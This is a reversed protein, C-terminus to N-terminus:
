RVAGARTTMPPGRRRPPPRGGEACSGGGWRQYHEKEKVVQDAGASPWQAVAPLGTEQLRAQLARGYEEWARRKQVLILVSQVLEEDLLRRGGQDQDLAADVLLVCREVSGARLAGRLLTSYTKEDPHTGEGIMRVRLEMAQDLRNNAICTSMLCTYVATNPRFGHKRPMEDVVRFAANVDKCRGYLKILISASYNSPAVGAEEMDRVVQECLGPMLKKACGDLLSNFVIADPRIGKRRMLAFLEMAQDLEGRICYGKILTSYTILDPGCEADIMDRFLRAAADMDGVRSCADILTNFVVLGVKAEQERMEAYCELAKACEKRQAFGKIIMAYAVAFGQSNLHEAHVKKMERFLSLADDLRGNTVLVDIMQGYLQESAVLGRTETVDQWIKWAQGLQHSQGYAKILTAYTHMACQKPMAWGSRKFANLTSALRGPDRLSVCAELTVNVLVEDVKVNYRQILALARDFSEADMVHRKGKYGKFLISMTYADVGPGGKSTEMMDVTRWARAFDDSAVAGSILSNYTAVNPRLACAQMEQLLAEIEGVSGTEGMYQKLLINFSVVDVRGNEKMAQFVTNASERDGHSVCVDLACNYAATDAEGRKALEWLMDLARPVNGEQSCARILSMCNQADPNKARQFLRRALALQGAQV